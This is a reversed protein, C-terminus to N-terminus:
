HEQNCHEGERKERDNDKNQPTKKRKKDKGKTKIKGGKQQTRKDERERKLRTSSALIV